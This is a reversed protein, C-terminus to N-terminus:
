RRDSFDEDKRNEKAVYNKMEEITYVGDKKSHIATHCNPCVPVLDGIPDVVYRRSIKSLPVIHHVEIIDAFDPGYAKAFDIGCVVCISGWHALCAARAQPNREYKSAWYSKQEGEAYRWVEANNIFNAVSSEFDCIDRGIFMDFDVFLKNINGDANYSWIKLSYLNKGLPKCDPLSSLREFIEKHKKDGDDQHMVCDISIVDPTIHVEYMVADGTQWYGASNKSVKFLKRFFPTTFRVTRGQSCWAEQFIIAANAKCKDMIVNAILSQRLQAKTNDM